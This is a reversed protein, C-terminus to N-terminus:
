PYEHLNSVPNSATLLHHDHHAAQAPGGSAVIARAAAPRDGNSSILCTRPIDGAVTM